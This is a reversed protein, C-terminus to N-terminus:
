SFHPLVEEGLLELTEVDNKVIGLICMQVGVDQYKGFLDVAQNATLVIGRIEGIQLRERKANLSQEDRALLVSGLTTREITNFDRGLTECHGRLVDFKHKVT